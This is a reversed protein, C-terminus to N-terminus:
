RGLRSERIATEIGDLAALVRENQTQQEVIVRALWFRFLRTLSYRLFLGVGVLLLGLGVLGGSILMPIQDAVYPTDSASWWAALMLVLGIVPLAVGSKLLITEAEALPEPVTLSQVGIELRQAATAPAASGAGARPEAAADDATNTNTM